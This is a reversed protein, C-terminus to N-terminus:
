AQLCAREGSWEGSGLGGWEVTQQTHMKVKGITKGWAHLCLTHSVNAFKEAKRAASFCQLCQQHLWPPPPTPSAPFASTKKPKEKKKNKYWTKQKRVVKTPFDFSCHSNEAAKPFNEIVDLLYFLIFFPFSGRERKRERETSELSIYVSFACM